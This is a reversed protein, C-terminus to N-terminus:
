RDAQLFKEYDIYTRIQWTRSTLEKIVAKCFDVIEEHVVKKLLIANLEADANVYEPVESRGIRKMMPELKYHELDEPNNLNGLYWEFKIRRQENYNTQIKKVMMNHHTLISLYKSHLEPIKILSKQPDVQSIPADKHWEDMLADITVPPRMHNEM